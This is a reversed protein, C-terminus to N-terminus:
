PGGGSVGSIHSFVSTRNEQWGAQSRSEGPLLRLTQELSLRADYHAPNNSVVTHLEHAALELLPLFRSQVAAEDAQRAALAQRLYILGSNYHSAEQLATPVEPHSAVRAYLTLAADTQQQQLLYHARAFLLVPINTRSNDTDISEPQALQRNLTQQQQYRYLNVAQWALLLLAVGLLLYRLARIM